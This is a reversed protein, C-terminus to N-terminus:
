NEGPRTSLDFGRRVLLWAWLVGFLGLGVVLAGQPGPALITSGAGLGSRVQDFVYTMPNALTVLRAWAPLSDVPYFAGGLALLLGIAFSAGVISSKMVAGRAAVVGLSVVLLGGGVVGPVLHWEARADRLFVLLFALGVFTSQTISVCFQFLAQALLYTSIGGPAAAILELRGGSTELRSEYAAGIVTNSVVNFVMVSVLMFLLSAAEGVAYSAFTAFLVASVLPRALM